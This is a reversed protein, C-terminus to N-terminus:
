FDRYVEKRHGVKIILIILKDGNVQYIIRYNTHRIRYLNTTGRLKTNGSPYPQVSLKLIKSVIQKRIDQPLKRLDKDISKKYELRYSGQVM